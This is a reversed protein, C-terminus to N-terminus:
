PQDITFAVIRGPFHESIWLTADPRLMITHPGEFGSAIVTTPAREGEDSPVAFRYIEGTVLLAVYVSTGDVAIGTPTSNREFTAAPSVVGDCDEDGPCAPWGADVPQGSPVSPVSYQLVNVEEVPADEINDGIEITWSSRGIM